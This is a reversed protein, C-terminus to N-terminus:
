WGTIVQHSSFRWLWFSETTFTVMPHICRGSDLCCCIYEDTYYYYYHTTEKVKGKEQSTGKKLQIHLGAKYLYQTYHSFSLLLKM